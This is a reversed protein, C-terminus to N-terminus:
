NASISMKKKNASNIKYKILVKVKRRAFHKIIKVSKGLGKQQITHYGKHLRVTTVFLTRFGESLRHV